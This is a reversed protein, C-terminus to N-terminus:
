KHLQSYKFVASNENLKNINLNYGIHSRPGWFWDYPYMKQFQSKYM